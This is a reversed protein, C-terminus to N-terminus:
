EREGDQVIGVHTRGQEAISGREVLIPIGAPSRDVRAATLNTVTGIYVTGIHNGIYVVVMVTDVTDVIYVIIGRGYDITGKRRCRTWETPAHQQSLLGQSPARARDCDVGHSQETQM